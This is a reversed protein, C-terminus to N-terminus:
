PTGAAALAKELVGIGAGDRWSEESLIRRWRRAGPRGNFLGLIHRSIHNLRGGAALHREVYPFLREVASHRDDVPNTGGFLRRDAGALLWPDQYAARGIMVGDCHELQREAADLTQIGGNLIIELAPFDQKLRHVVEYRLPPIERNEKPSLGELWAKRAHVIFTRCGAEALTGVFELLEAYSDRADVGIRHKVTVPIGVADRMAKVCDAVRDPSLMLCAGFRGSQVRGSPCGVNLNIEDYGWGQGLRGCEALERPESGGLQLAVPHEVPSFDLHRPRDGHILAGTTVMETYLLTERTLLRHFYRCHRDTWDLMPAVSLTRRPAIPCHPGDKIANQSSDRM